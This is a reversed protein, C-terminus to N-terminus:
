GVDSAWKKRYFSQYAPDQCECDARKRMVYLWRNHPGTLISTALINADPRLPAEVAIQRKVIEAALLVGPAASLMPASVAPEDSLPRLQGCAVRVLDRGPVDRLIERDEPRLRALVGDPLPNATDLHPELQSLSIGLRQAMNEEPTHARLDARSICGLCAEHLFDHSTIRYEGGDSTGGNLTLRPMDLQFERRVADDDVTVVGTKVDSRDAADLANWRQPASVPTAGAARLLTCLLEAKLEDIESFSATLHRNLNTKDITDDDVALPSGNLSLLALPWAVASAVGGCGLFVLGDLDLRPIAEGLNPALGFDWLSVTGRWSTKRARTGSVDLMVQLAEASSLVGAFSAALPNGPVDPLEEGIACAWGASSVALGAADGSFVLRLSPESSRGPRLRHVSDFGEHELALEDALPGDGLRPLRTTRTAPVDLHLHPAAEDLRLLLTTTLAVATEVAPTFRTAVIDIDLGAMRQIATDPDDSLRAVFRRTRDSAGAM